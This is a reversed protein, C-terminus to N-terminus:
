DSYYDPDGLLDTSNKYPMGDPFLMKLDRETLVINKLDDNTINLRKIDDDPLEIVLPEDTRGDKERGKEVEFRTHDAIFDRGLKTRGDDGHHLLQERTLNWTDM